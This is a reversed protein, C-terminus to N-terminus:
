PYLLTRPRIKNNKITNNEEQLLKISEDKKSNEAKLEDINKELKRIIEDKKEIIDSYDTEKDKIKKELDSIKLLEKQHKKNFSNIKQEYTKNQTLLEQPSQINNDQNKNNYEIQRINKINLLITVWIRWFM